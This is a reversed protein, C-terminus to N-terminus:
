GPRLIMARRTGDASARKAAPGNESHLSDLIAEAQLFAERLAGLNPEPDGFAVPGRDMQQNFENALEYADQIADHDAAPLNLGAGYANWRDAPLLQYPAHKGPWISGWEKRQDDLQRLRRLIHRIEDRLLRVREARGRLQERQDELDSEETRLRDIARFWWQSLHESGTAPASLHALAGRIAHLQESVEAWAAEADTARLEGALPRSRPPLVPIKGLPPLPDRPQGTLLRILDELAEPSFERITFRPVGRLRDPVADECVSLPLEVIVVKKRFLLQDDTFIGQLQDAEAAAGAGVHPDNRGEWREKWPVSVAIITFERDAIAKPGFRHWDIGPEHKHFLDQTRAPAVGFVAGAGLLVGIVLVISRPWDFSGTQPWIFGWEDSRRDVTRNHHV